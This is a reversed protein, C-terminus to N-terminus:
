RGFNSGYQNIFQRGTTPECTVSSQRREWTFTGAATAIMIHDCRQTVIMDEVGNRNLMPGWYAVRRM